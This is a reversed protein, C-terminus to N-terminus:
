ISLNDYEINKAAAGGNGKKPSRALNLDIGVSNKM